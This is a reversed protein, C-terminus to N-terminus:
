WELIRSVLRQYRALADKYEGDRRRKEAEFRDEDTKISDQLQKYQKELTQNKDELPRFNMRLDGIMNEMKAIQDRRYRSEDSSARQALTSLEDLKQQYLSTVEGRRLKYSTEYELKIDKVALAIDNEFFQRADFSSIPLLKNIEVVEREQVKLLFEKEALLREERAKYEALELRIRAIEDWIREYDGYLNTNQNTLQSREDALRKNKAHLGYVESISAIGYFM